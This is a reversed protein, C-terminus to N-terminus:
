EDAHAQSRAKGAPLGRGSLDEWVQTWAYCGKSEHPIACILTLLPSDPLRKVVHGGRKWARYGSASVNLVAYMMPLPFENRVSDIWAM